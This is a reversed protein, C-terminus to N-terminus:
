SRAERARREASALLYEAWELDHPTDIDVSDLANMVYPIVRSGYIRGSDVLERRMVYVAGNETFAPPLDSRDMDMEAQSFFPVITAGRRGWAWYPHDQSPRVATVTDAADREFIEIARDIDAHTRFPSTPQLLVVADVREGTREFCALAHQLAAVVPSRDGAIAAPRLEPVVASRERAHAAITESDTSVVVASLRRAAAAAKLTYDILPVGGLGVLNKGPIRKSGARAPIVGLYFAGRTM